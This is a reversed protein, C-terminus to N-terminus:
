LSKGCVGRIMRKIRDIKKNIHNRCNGVDIWQQRVAKIARPGFEHAPTQGYLMAVPRIAQRINSQEWTPTGDARRYYSQVHDWYRDILEVITISETELPARGGGAAWEAILRSYREKSEDTGYHGLYRRQGDVVVFARDGDKTRQRRYTPATPKRAM